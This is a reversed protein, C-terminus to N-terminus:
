PASDLIGPRGTSRTDIRHADNRRHTAVLMGGAITLVIVAVVGADVANLGPRDSAAQLRECRARIQQPATADAAAPPCGPPVFVPGKAAAPATLVMFALALMLLGITGRTHANHSM